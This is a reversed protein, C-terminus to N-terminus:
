EGYAVELRALKKAALALFCAALGFGVFSRNM